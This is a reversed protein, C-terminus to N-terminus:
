EYETPLCLTMSCTSATPRREFNTASVCFTVKIDNISCQPKGTIFQLLSGLMEVSLSIVFRRFFDFVREEVPSSFEPEIVMEWVQAASPLLARYLSKAVDPSCAQWLASHSTLMGSRIKELVFYPQNVLTFKAISRTLQELNDSTPTATSHLCSFIALVNEQEEEVIAERLSM